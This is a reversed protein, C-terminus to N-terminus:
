GGSRLERTTRETEAKLTNSTNELGERVQETAQELQQGVEQGVQGLDDGIKEAGEGLSEAGSAFDASHTKWAQQLKLQALTWAMTANTEMFAGLDKFGARQVAEEIRTVDEPRVAKPDNKQLQTALEPYAKQINEMARIYQEFTQATLQTQEAPACGWLSALILSCAILKKM